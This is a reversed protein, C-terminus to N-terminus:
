GSGEVETALRKDIAVAPGFMPHKGCWDDGAVVRWVSQINFQPRNLPDAPAPLIFAQPPSEHCTGMVKGNPAINGEVFFPCTACAVAFKEIM